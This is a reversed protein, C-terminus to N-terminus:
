AALPQRQPIAYPQRALQRAPRFTPPVVHCDISALEAILRNFAHEAADVCAEARARLPALEHARALELLVPATVLSWERAPDMPELPTQIIRAPAASCPREQRRERLHLLLAFAALGAIVALWGVLDSSVQEM